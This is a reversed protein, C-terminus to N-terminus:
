SDQQLVSLLSARLLQPAIEREDVLVARGLAELLVWQVHGGVAKKDRKLLPVLRTPDLDGARPLRGCLRVAARLSELESRSVMGLRKSIEGAVLM